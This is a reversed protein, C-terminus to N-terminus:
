VVLTGGIGDDTGRDPDALTYSAMPSVYFRNEIAASATKDDDQAVSVGPLAGGLCAALLVLLQRKRIM